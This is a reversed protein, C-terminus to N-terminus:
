PRLTGYLAACRDRARSLHLAATYRRGAEGHRGALEDGMGLHGAHRAARAAAVQAVRTVRMVIRQRQHDPLTLWLIALTLILSALKQVPGPGNSGM